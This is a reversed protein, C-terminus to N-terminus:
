VISEVACTGDLGDVVTVSRLVAFLIIVFRSFSKEMGSGADTSIVFM